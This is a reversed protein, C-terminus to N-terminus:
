SSNFKFNMFFNFFSPKGSFSAEIYGYRTKKRFNVVISIIEIYPSFPKIVFIIM